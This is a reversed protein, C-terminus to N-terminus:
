SVIMPLLRAHRPSFLFRGDNLMQSVILEMHRAQRMCYDHEITPSLSLEQNPCVFLCDLFISVFREIVWERADCDVKYMGINQLSTRIWTPSRFVVLLLGTVTHYREECKGSSSMSSSSSCERLCFNPERRVRSAFESRALIWRVLLVTGHWTKAWIQDLNVKRLAGDLDLESSFLLTEDIGSAERCEDTLNETFLPRVYQRHLAVM